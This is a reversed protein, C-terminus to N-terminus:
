IRKKKITITIKLKIPKKTGSASRRGALSKVATKISM